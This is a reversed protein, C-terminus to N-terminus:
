NMSADYRPTEGSVNLRMRLFRDNWYDTPRPGRKSVVLIMRPSTRAESPSLRHDGHVPRLRAGAHVGQKKKDSRCSDARLM